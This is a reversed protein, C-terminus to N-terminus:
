KDRGVRMRVRVLDARREIVVIFPPQADVDDVAAAQLTELVFASSIHGPRVRVIGIFPEGEQIALRGFDGDHTLVVRGQDYARRLVARDDVGLLAEDSVSRVDKGRAVLWSVVDPHINEDTLLPYDLLKV